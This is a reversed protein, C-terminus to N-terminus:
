WIWGHTKGGRLKSVTYTPHIDSHGLSPALAPNWLILTKWNDEQEPTNGPACREGQSVVQFSHELLGKALEWQSRSWPPMRMLFLKLLQFCPLRACSLYDNTNFSIGTNGELQQARSHSCSGKLNQLTPSPTAHFSTMSVGWHIYPMKGSAAGECDISMSSYFSHYLETQLDTLQPETILIVQGLDWPEIASHPEAKNIAKPYIHFYISMKLTWPQYWFFSWYRGYWLGSLLTHSLTLSLPHLIEMLINKTRLWKWFLFALLSLSKAMM